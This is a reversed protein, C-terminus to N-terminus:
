SIFRNNSPKKLRDSVVDGHNSGISCPWHSGAISMASLPECIWTRASNGPM